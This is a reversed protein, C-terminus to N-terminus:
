EGTSGFGSQGRLSEELLALKDVRQAGFAYIPVVIMQAIKNGPNISTAFEFNKLLVKVEGRYSSDIVGALVHCGKELAMSSRDKIIGVYGDPIHVYLGTSILQQSDGFIKYGRSAHLDWGADGKRPQQFWCGAAMAEPTLYYRILTCEM